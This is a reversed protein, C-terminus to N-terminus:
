KNNWWKNEKILKAHELRDKIPMTGYNHQVFTTNINYTHENSGLIHGMTSLPLFKLLSYLRPSKNFLSILFGDIACITDNKLNEFVLNSLYFNECLMSFFDKMTKTNKVIFFGENFTTQTFTLDTLTKFFDCNYKKNFKIIENKNKLFENLCEEDHIFSNFCNVFKNLYQPIDYYNNSQCVFMEHEDDIFEELKINPNSIIADTDFLAIYESDDKILENKIMFIKYLCIDHWINCKVNLFEYKNKNEIIPQLDDITINKFIFEYKHQNCYKQTLEKFIQVLEKIDDNDNKTSVIDEAKYEIINSRYSIIKFKHKM